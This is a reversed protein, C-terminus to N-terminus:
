PRRAMVLYNLSSREDSSFRQVIPTLLNIAPLLPLMWRPLIEIVSVSIQTLTKCDATVEIDVFGARSLLARFGHKTFRLYDHPEEHLPWYFPGTLILVGGPKLVRAMEGLMRQPDPVHEIVQTSFVIDACGNAFPLCQADGLVDPSAGELGYNLGVYHAEGFLDRYPKEGCGVDVVVLNRQAGLRGLATRVAAEILPWLSRYVLYDRSLVSVSRGSLRRLSPVETV